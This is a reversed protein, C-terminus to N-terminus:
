SLNHLRSEYGGTLKNIYNAQVFRVVFNINWWYVWIPYIEARIEKHSGVPPLRRSYYDMKERSHLELAKLDAFSLKKLKRLLRSNNM